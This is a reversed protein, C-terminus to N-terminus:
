NQEATQISCLNRGRGKLLMLAQWYLNGIYPGM